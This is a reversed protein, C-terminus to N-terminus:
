RTLKPRTRTLGLDAWGALREEGWTHGLGSRLERGVYAWLLHTGQRTRHQVVARRENTGDITGDGSWVADVPKARTIPGHKLRPV